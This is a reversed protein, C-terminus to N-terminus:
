NQTLLVRSRYKNSSGWTGSVGRRPFMMSDNLSSVKVTVKDRCEIKFDDIPTADQSTELCYM